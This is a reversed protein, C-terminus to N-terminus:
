IMSGVRSSSLEWMLCHAPMARSIACWHLAERVVPQGSWVAAACGQPLLRHRPNGHRCFGLAGYRRAYHLICEAPAEDLRVFETLLAAGAKFARFRLERRGHRRTRVPYRFLLWEGDLNVEPAGM